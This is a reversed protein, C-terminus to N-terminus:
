KKIPYPPVTPIKPKTDTKMEQLIEDIARNLQQDIDQYEMAPDNDVEIDPIMGVNELIWQGNAGFNAFEPRTMYGGDLFPMSGRIGIVGGWSRKGILKGIGLTKFQYPFLDGDSASLENLLCVIPGTMVADPNTQVIEQNRVNKAVVLIRRLREIIMPSVNGGGNYRDDVILADKRDQPYFYKIFEKLGHTVSMDPIHVYGVRGNTASDVKHRNNEVWNFYRLNSENSLTKVTYEHAGKENPSSNIKLTVYKGAKNVLLKAPTNAYDPKIGDISILYDGVKADVGPETLPSRTDEDWNRGTYIKKFKYNGAKADWLYDAGLLGVPVPDVKPMDGGGVYSHGICLEGILEGILYTLDTRHHVYPLLAAYKDHMAKWDVGHMNPDYFFESMQRWSEEYIQNWEERHNLVVQMDSLNLKGDGPKIKDGLDQIFYDEKDHFIIKKGDHSISYSSIEGIENEKKDKLNYSALVPKKGTVSRAYYVKDGFAALGWYNGAQVPLEFIRDRIGDFDIKINEVQTKDNKDSKKSDDKKGDGKQDDTTGAEDSQYYFPSKSTGQLCVGYVKSMDSLSFNWEVENVSPNFTRASVFFLYKGDPSFNPHGSDYYKDSVQYAKDQETSYIFVVQENNDVFDTYTVFRSDPSWDFDRIEWVKSKAINKSTKSDVDIIYMNMTKDSNILKKSDPSWSLEYRYSVGDSTIQTLDSGDPKVTYVEDTGSKDSIFAIRSGDPSWVPNRDHVGSTSTLNLIKGKQAPVTFIDGRACFLGRKGDPSIDFGEVNNTVNVSKTRIDPFDEAIEIKIQEYKETDQRNL